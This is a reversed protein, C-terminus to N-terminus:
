FITLLCELLWISLKDPTGGYRLRDEGKSDPRGLAGHVYRAMRGQACPM